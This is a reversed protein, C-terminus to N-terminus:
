LGWQIMEIAKRESGAKELTHFISVPLGLIYSQEWGDVNDLSRRPISAPEDLQL